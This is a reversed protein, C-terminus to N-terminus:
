DVIAILTNFYYEVTGHEFEIFIIYTFGPAIDFTIENNEYTFDLKKESNQVGGYSYVEVSNIEDACYSPCLTISYDHEHDINVGDTIFWEEEEVEKDNWIYKKSSLPEVSENIVTQGEQHKITVALKPPENPAKFLSCSCLLTSLVTLITLTLATSAIKFSKKM